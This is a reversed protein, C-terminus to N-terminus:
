SIEEHLTLCDQSGYFVKCFVSQFVYAYVALLSQLSTSTLL